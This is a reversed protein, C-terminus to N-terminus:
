VPRSTCHYVLPPTVHLQTHEHVPRSLRAAVHLSPCTATCRRYCARSEANVRGGAGAAPTGSGAADPINNQGAPCLTNANIHRLVGARSMYSGAPSVCSGATVHLKWGTARLKWSHRAAELPPMCSGASMWQGDVWGDVDADARM